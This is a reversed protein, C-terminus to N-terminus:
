LPLRSEFDGPISGQPVVMTKDTVSERLMIVMETEFHRDEDVRENAVVEGNCTPSSIQSTCHFRLCSLFFVELLEEKAIGIVISRTKSTHVLLLNPRGM